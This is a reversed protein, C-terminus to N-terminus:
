GRGHTFLTALRSADVGVLSDIRVRRSAKPVAVLNHVAVVVCGAANGSTCGPISDELALCDGPRVGLRNCATLYPEPHPKGHTM